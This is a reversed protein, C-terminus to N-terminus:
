AHCAPVGGHYEVIQGFVKPVDIPVGPVAGELELYARALNGVLRESEGLEAYEGLDTQRALDLPDLGAAHGAAATRQIWRLYDEAVDFLEPGGPPGHGPVVTEAGLARLREIARLSGTVSGMMCFPTAGSMVVDGAFLVRREPLHVVSDDPTHAPGVHVVEVMPGPGDFAFRDRYTVDPLTLEIGGWDADPWFDRLGLGIRSMHELTQEHALITADPAFVFNGFTHDGHHHTNVVMLTPNPAVRRVLDRLGRARRETATTDVVITRPPTAIIGANSLCWGGDYQIAAYVGHAIDVLDPEGFRDTAEVM